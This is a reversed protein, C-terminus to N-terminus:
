SKPAFTGLSPAQRTKWICNLGFRGARRWDLGTTEARRRRPVNEFRRDILVSRDLKPPVRRQECVEATQPFEAKVDFERFGAGSESCMSQLCFSIGLATQQPRHSQRPALVDIGGVNGQDERDRLGSLGAFAVDRVLRRDRSFGNNASPLHCLTLQRRPVLPRSVHRKVARRTRTAFPWLCRISLLRICHM